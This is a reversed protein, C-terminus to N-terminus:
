MAVLYGSAGFVELAFIFSAWICDVTGCWSVYTTYFAFLSRRLCSYIDVKQVKFILAYIVDEEIGAM